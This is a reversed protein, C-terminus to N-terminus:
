AEEPIVERQRRTKLKSAGTTGAKSKRASTKTTRPPSQPPPPSEPMHSLRSSRRPKPEDEGDDTAAVSSARSVRGRTSRRSPIKKPSEQEDASPLSPRTIRPSSPFAGPLRADSSRTALVTPEKTRRRSTRTPRPPSPEPEPEHEEEYEEPEHEQEQESEHEEEQEPELEIEPPNYRPRSYAPQTVFDEDLGDYDMEADAQEPAPINGWTTHRNDGLMPQVSKDGPGGSSGFPRKVPTVRREPVGSGGATAGSLPNTFPKPTTNPTPQTSGFGRAIPTRSASTPPQINFAPRTTPKSAFTPPPVALPAAPTSAASRVPYSGFSARPLRSPAPSGTAQSGARQSWSMRRAHPSNSGASAVGFNIAAIPTSSGSRASLYPSGELRSTHVFAKLVAANSGAQRFAASATLPTMSSSSPQAPSNRPPSQAMSDVMISSSGNVHEWSMALDGNAHGNLYGHILPGKGKRAEAEQEEIGMELVRRQVVPIVGMLEELAEKRRASADKVAPGTFTGANAFQRDLQIAESYHGSHILRVSIMNQFIAVSADSLIDPPSLAMAKVIRDEYATFPFGLLTKLPEPRPKPHFCFMIIRSIHRERESTDEPLSRQYLWADTISSYCLANVYLDLDDQNDLTPNAIRVFRLLSKSAVTPEPICSLTKMIKSTFEHLVRSDCLYPVAEESRDVDLLYYADSVFMFQPPLLKSQAFPKERGDEWHRLLYYILCSQQFDDWSTDLIANVLHHFTPVDRPPYLSHADIGALKLLADFFLEGDMEEDRRRIIADRRADVWPFSQPSLDFM